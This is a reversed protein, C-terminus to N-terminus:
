LSPGPFLIRPSVIGAKPHSKFFEIMGPFINSTLKADPNLLFFYDGSSAKFAQNVAKSFGLNAENEILLHLPFAKRIYDVSNDSSANDVIIIEYELGRTFEEVSHVCEHLVSSANYNVIAISINM